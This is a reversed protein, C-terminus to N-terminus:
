VGGERERRSTQEDLFDKVGRRLRDRAHRLNSRVNAPSTQLIEAIKAPEFGDITLAMVERQTTPLQRLVATVRDCEDPEGSDPQLANVAASRAAQAELLPRRRDRETNNVYQHIAATRVWGAPNELLYWRVYAEVMAASVADEADEMSAGAYMVSKVLSRYRDRFFVDFAEDHDHGVSADPRDAFLVVDSDSGRTQVM